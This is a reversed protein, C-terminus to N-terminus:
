GARSRRSSRALAMHGLLRRVPGFVLAFGISLTALKNVEGSPAPSPTPMPSGHPSSGFPETGFPDASGGSGGGYTMRGDGPNRRRILVAQDRQHHAGDSQVMM